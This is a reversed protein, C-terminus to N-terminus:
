VFVKVYILGTLEYLVNKWGNLTLFWNSPTVNKDPICIVGIDATDGFVKKYSVYSRRAHCGQTILTISHKKKNDNKELWKQVDLATTYTRSKVINISEVPHVLSDPLGANILINAAFIARSHSLQEFLVYVGNKQRFYKVQENNAFLAKKNVSISYIYLNRDRFFTFNDNDFNVQIFAPPSEIKVQYHFQSMRPGTFSDGLETSDAYIRFHPYEAEAKTGRALLTIIYISDSSATVKKRFDFVIKGNCAMCYGDHNPFGTTIVYQYHNIQFEKKAEELANGTLWGEVILKDAKVPHSFCLFKLLLTLFFVVAIIVLLFLLLFNGRHKPGM